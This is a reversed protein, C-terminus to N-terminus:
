KKIIYGSPMWINPLTKVKINPLIERVAMTEGPALEHNFQDLVLIGGPTIREWVLKLISKVVKYFGADLFFLKFQLHRNIELFNSLEKTVDMKHIYGSNKFGQLQILEIIEDYDGKYSSSDVKLEIDDTGTGEFWDFGHVQTLSEGEFIKVLKLFLFFSAGKYVGIEGIHGSVGLTKKYLEYLGIVRSLSMHGVYTTFHEMFDEVKLDSKSLHRLYNNFDKRRHDFKMHEFKGSHKKM